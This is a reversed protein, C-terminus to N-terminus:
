HIGVVVLAVDVSVPVGVLVGYGSDVVEVPPAFADRRASLGLVPNTPTDWPSHWTSQSRSCWRVMVGWWSMSLMMTRWTVHAFRSLSCRSSVLLTPISAPVVLHTSGLM